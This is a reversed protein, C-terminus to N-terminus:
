TMNLLQEAEFVRKNLLDYNKMYSHIEHIPLDMLMRTIKPALVGVLGQVFNYIIYGV